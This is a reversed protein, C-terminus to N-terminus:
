KHRPSRAAFDPMRFRKRYAGAFHERQWRQAGAICADGHDSKRRHGLVDLV